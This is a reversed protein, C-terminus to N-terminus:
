IDNPKKYHKIKGEVENKNLIKDDKSITKDFIGYEDSYKKLGYGTVILAIGGLIRKLM